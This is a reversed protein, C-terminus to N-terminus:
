ADLPVDNVSGSGVVIEDDLNSADNDQNDGFLKISLADAKELFKDAKNELHSLWKLLVKTKVEQWTESLKAKIKQGLSVLAQWVIKGLAKFDKKIITWLESGKRKLIEKLTAWRSKKEEDSM